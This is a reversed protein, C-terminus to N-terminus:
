KPKIKRRKLSRVLFISGISVFLGVGVLGIWIMPKTQNEENEVDPPIDEIIEQTSKVTPTSQVETRTVAPTPTTTEEIMVPEPSQGNLDLRFVGGGDTGAYLHNGESSIALSTVSRMTLGNTITRWNKGGDSSRYVGSLLDAAYIVDDPQTPDFELDTIVAEPPMGAASRKWTLGGDISLFVGQGYFGAFLHEPNRPNFVVSLATSPLGNKISEWSKGGNESYLLGTNPSAAYLIKPNNPHIALKAINSTMTLADNISQWSEGNDHSVFIGQGPSRDDFGGASFYGSSGAFITKPDSPAYKITRWGSKEPIHHVVTWETGANESKAIRNDWNTGAIIQNTNDPNIDVANWELVSLPPNSIGDWSEGGNMSIFIGSRAVAVVRAPENPDVVLDRIQAGTYGASANKWTRGGDESLFNGGGYNNAFIRDPDRPDVQFDIPFGARVGAMGWGHITEGSIIKWNKGGDDSRYITNSSGAYAINPDATSFEVSAIIDSKIVREWNAGGDLTLYAGASKHYQNNGTGALLIDPNTPHMFLSGVYLNDLGNNITEWTKGGDYSKIIGEGGPERSEPNSDNAERDFIGTSVYLINVDRPDVWIYRALNDGRWISKWNEGGDISKYVVGTVRDFELGQKPQRGNAWSAIEAAAYVTDSNGPEVTFGRFSIGDNEIIGTTKQQWTYGGDTSKFIGRTNQFGTWIINSNNPDITTCFVPIVDGTAGLRATLGENTPSWTQGGDTSIFIGAYADTVFMKEPDAPDMRVDYGLGGLPGGTRNWILDTINVENITESSTGAIDIIVDDIAAKSSLLTEFATIGYTIPEPDTFTWETEGNVNFIITDGEGIIEIAHWVQNQHAINKWALNEQFDEPWYQKNLKSGSGSFNIYYRGEDNLRYIIHIDGTILKLKFSFRYDEGGQNLRAWVHGEGYLIHNENEKIVQWGDDLDWGQAIADEFDEQYFLHSKSHVNIPSQLAGCFLFILIGVSLIRARTARM